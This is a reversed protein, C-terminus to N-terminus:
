YRNTEWSKMEKLETRMGQVELREEVKGCIMAERPGLGRSSGVVM